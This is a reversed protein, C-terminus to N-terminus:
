TGQPRTGTTPSPHAPDGAARVRGGDRPRHGLRPSASSPFGFFHGPGPTQVVAATTAAWVGIDRTLATGLSREPRVAVAIAALMDTLLNDLLLQRVGLPSTGSILGTGVTFGIEGLDGGLLIALPTAPRAGCRGATPSRTPSPRSGTTPSWWTQPAGRRRLPAGGWRSAWIPWGSRRPTTPGAVVVHGTTRLAQVMRAKQAPSVRAFVAVGELGAAPQRDDLADAETLPDQLAGAFPAAGARGLGRVRIHSHGPCTRNVRRPGLLEAVARVGGPSAADGIGAPEDGTGALVSCRRAAM